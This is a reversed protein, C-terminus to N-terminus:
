VALLTGMGMIMAVAEFVVFVCGLGHWWWLMAVVEVVDRV